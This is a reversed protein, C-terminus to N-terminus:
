QSQLNKPQLNCFFFITVLWDYQYSFLIVYCITYMRLKFCRAFPDGSFNIPCTCIPNHNVVKCEANVGCSGICPDVCRQNSCAQNLPCESSITCEPRCSPPAGIYNPVCSCVPQGNIERCQSNPGCPSPHCPNTM